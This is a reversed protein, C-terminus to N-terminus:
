FDIIKVASNAYEPPPSEGFQVKGDKDVWRYLQSESPPPDGSSDAQVKSSTNAVAGPADVEESAADGAVTPPVSSGGSGTGVEPPTASASLADGTTPVQAAKASAPKPRAAAPKAVRVPAPEAVVKVEPEPASQLAQSPTAEAVAQTEPGAGDQSPNERSYWYVAFFAAWAIGAISLAITRGIRRRAPVVEPVVSGARTQQQGDRTAVIAAEDPNFADLLASVEPLRQKRDFSLAAALAANQKETLGKVPEVKLERFRADVASKRGFPHKGTLAEYAVLGLAYIDDRPDPEEADLIQEASAYANTYAGLRGADFLTLTTDAGPTSDKAIRAIGFDIVKVEGGRTVFVNAPKFDSHVVGKSHAHRLASGAGRIVQRAQEPPLGSNAHRALMKDLTEGELLEMVLYVYPGDRDFDYVSAINPHSLNHMRRAERQLAVLADPHSKFDDGLVKIAV